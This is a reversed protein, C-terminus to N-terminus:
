LAEKILSFFSLSLVPKFSFILFGLIMADLGMVEHCISPSFTSTTISKRKKPELIVTSPSQLQSILLCSSWPLFAIVFRSLISFCLCREGGLNIYDLSHNEWHGRVTTLSVGYLLFLALSNIGEFQPAPSVGSLGKSPLSSLGTLRLPFWGQFSTPFVTASASAGTNQDDSPSCSVWQFLGQHQSLNLAFPSSPMLPHSPQIADSIYHAHVNAFKLVHHPVPLCPTSCGKPDCLTPWLHTVSCGCCSFWKVTCRFSACHWLDVTSWHFYSCHYNRILFIYTSM